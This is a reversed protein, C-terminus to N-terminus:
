HAAGTGQGSKINPLLLVAPISVVLLIALTMFADSYAMVLAERHMQGAVTAIAQVPAGAANGARDAFVAALRDIHAWTADANGTVRDSIAAFHVQERTQTITSLLAIGISGGLNRCINSLSAADATDRLSLGTIALEFLPVAFLPFGISRIVQPLILEERGVNFTMDANVFCSLAFLSIGTGVMIRPPMVKLLFPIFPFLALQPLGSWMVVSGIQMTSYRPVEALYVPILFLSGYSVAGVVTSLLNSWGVSPVAFLRLNIFPKDGTLELILFFTLSVVGLVTLGSILTSGYWDYRQGEELVVTMAGLGVAMTGVGWWDGEILERLRMPVKDMMTLQLAMALIGPIINLYFLYHWSFHETLWGGLSPGIAPAFTASIGFLSMGITQQHPPLHRRIITMGTPILVGGTFGQGVRNLILEMMTTSQACGISFLVFLATNVALYRRVGFVTSLWGTLPIVIIEAMLYATSIWSGEDSSAGLGGEIPALSSNTIQIDLIAMFCGVMGGAVALWDRLSAKAVSGDPNM